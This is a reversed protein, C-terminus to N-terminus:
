LLQLWEKLGALSLKSIPIGEKKGKEDKVFIQYPEGPLLENIYPYHLIYSAHVRMFSKPNLKEEFEKLPHNVILAESPNALRIYTQRGKAMLYMVREIDVFSIVSKAGDTTRVALKNFEPRPQEIVQFKNKLFEVDRMAAIAKEADQVASSLKKSDIPKSIYSFAKYDIAKVAHEYDKHGTVFIVKFEPYDFESLLTFGDMDPLSIDLFLLDPTHQRIYSIGEAGNTAIAVVEVQPCFLRLQMTLNNVGHPEDEIIITKITM